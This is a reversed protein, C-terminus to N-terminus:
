KAEVTGTGDMRHLMGLGECIHSFPGGEIYERIIEVFKGNMEALVIAHDGERRLWIATVTVLHKKSMVARM